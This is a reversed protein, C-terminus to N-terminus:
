RAADQARLSIPSRTLCRAVRAAGGNANGTRANYLDANSAAFAGAGGGVLAGGMGPLVNAAVNGLTMSGTADGISDAVSNLKGALAASVAAGAAGAAVMGVSGGGLGGLLAGGAIHLLTRDTGREDWSNVEAQYKAYGDMDAAAKAADAAKQAKEQKEDGYAGIGQAVV